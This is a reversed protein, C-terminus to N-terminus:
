TQANTGATGVEAANCVIGLSPQDKGGKGFYGGKGYGEQGGKGFADTGGKSGFFGKFGKPSEKGWGAWPNKKRPM